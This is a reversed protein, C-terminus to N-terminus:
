KSSKRSKSATKKKAGPKAKPITRRAEVVQVIQSEEFYLKGSVPYLSMELKKVYKQVTQSSIGMVASVEEYNYLKKGSETIIM